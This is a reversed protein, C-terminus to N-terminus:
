ASCAAPRGTTPPLCMDRRLPPKGRRITFRTYKGIRGGARVFVEVVAGPRLRRVMKKFRVPRHNTVVRIIDHRPCGPGKCRVRIRSGIPARVELLSIRTSNGSVRGAIRVIPFPLLLRTSRSGAVAPQRPAGAPARVVVSHFAVDTLGSTDTVRLGVTYTGAFPFVNSIVAGAADNFLGNDDLDWQWNAIAGDPDTSTSTFTVPRGATPGSSVNFSAVPPGGVPVTVAAIATAGRNDTVRLRVIADGPVNFAKTATPGTADTFNGNGTLDWEELAISGDPDKSTSHFTVPQGVVPATPTFTFSATPPQDVVVNQRATAVAGRNDTVRLSVRHAGPTLFTFSTSPTTADGFRGDGDLDWSWGTITGDIDTSTSTFSVGTGPLPNAPAFTFGATPPANVSVTTTGTAQVPPPPPPAPPPAAPTAETATVTVTFTGPNAFSHSVSASAGSVSATGDGFSWQYSTVTQGPDPPASATFAVRQGTAPVAPTFSVSASFAAARGPTLGFAIVAALVVLAARPAGPRDAPVIRSV